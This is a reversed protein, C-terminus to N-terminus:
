VAEQYTQLAQVYGQLIMKPDQLTDQPEVHVNLDQDLRFTKGNVLIDARNGALVGRGVNKEGGIALDGTWLDKLILLLLGAEYDHYDRIHMTIRIQQAPTQTESFLPMTDFLASEITGGTFRDIKIRTQQEAVVHEIPQEEIRLRGKQAPPEGERVQDPEKVFGFLDNIITETRSNQGLTNLIREARARIAGKLSTGPLVWKDGSKIHTADPMNPDSSYSRVILSNKLRFDATITFTNHNLTFPTGLQAVTIKQEDNLTRTLWNWVATKQTFDFEYIRVTDELLKIEGLGSNTKAGLRIRQNQLLDYITAVMQRVFAKNSARYSFEM